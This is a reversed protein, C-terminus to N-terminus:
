PRPRTGAPSTWPPPSTAACPWPSFTWPSGTGRWIGSTFGRTGWRMLAGGEPCGPWAYYTQGARQLGSAAHSHGLALYTLGSGAVEGQTIPGYRSHPSSLDGHFCGFSVGEERARFGTLPGDMRYPSVFASGYVTVGLRPVEVREPTPGSFIHVHGPWARCCYPSADTYPDHNGPALFVPVELAAFFEELAQLSEPRVRQSDFLDGALFILDARSERAAQALRSLLQRQERRRQAAQEPPLAHFPSDLHLDAAHLFTLM